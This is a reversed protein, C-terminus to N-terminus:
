FENGEIRIDFKVRDMAGLEVFIGDTSVKNIYHCYIFYDEGTTLLVEYVISDPVVM